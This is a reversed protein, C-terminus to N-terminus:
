ELGKHLEAIARQMRYEPMNQAYNMRYAFPWVSLGYRNAVRKGLGGLVGALKRRHEGDGRGLVATALEEIRVWEDPREALYRLTQKAHDSSEDWNLTVRDATWVAEREGDADASLAAVLRTGTAGTRKGRNDPGEQQSLFEYVALVLHDPVPVMIFNSSGVIANNM